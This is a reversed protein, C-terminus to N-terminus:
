VAAQSPPMEAKPKGSFIKNTIQAVKEGGFGIIDAMFGSAKRALAKRGAVYELAGKAGIAAGAIKYSKDKKIILGIGSVMDSFGFAHLAVDIVASGFRNLKAVGVAVPKLRDLAQKRKGEDLTDVVRQYASMWKKEVFEGKNRFDSFEKQVAKKARDGLSVKEPRASGEFIPGGNEAM